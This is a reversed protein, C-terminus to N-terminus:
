YILLNIEKGIELIYKSSYLSGFLILWTNIKFFSMSYINSIYLIICLIHYKIIYEIDDFIYNLLYFYLYASHIILLTKSTGQLAESVIHVNIQESTPNINMINDYDKLIIANENNNLYWYSYAFVLSTTFIFSKYYTDMLNMERKKFNNKISYNM